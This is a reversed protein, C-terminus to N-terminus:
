KDKSDIVGDGSIDFLIKQYEGNLYGLSAQMVLNDNIVFRSEMEVGSIRADATNRLVQSSGLKEEERRGEREM